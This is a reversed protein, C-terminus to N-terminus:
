SARPGPRPIAPSSAPEEIEGVLIEGTAITSFSAEMSCCLRDPEELDRGVRSQELADGGGLPAM